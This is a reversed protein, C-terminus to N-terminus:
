MIKPKGSFGCNSIKLLGLGLVCYYCVQLPVINFISTVTQYGDTVILVGLNMYIENSISFICIDAAERGLYCRSNIFYDFDIHLCSGLVQGVWRLMQKTALYVSTILLKMLGLFTLVNM